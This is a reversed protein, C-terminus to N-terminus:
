PRREDEPEQDAGDQGERSEEGGNEVAVLGLLRAPGAGAAALDHGEVVREARAAPGLELEGGVPGDGLRGAALSASDRGSRVPNRKPEGLLLLGCGIIRATSATM